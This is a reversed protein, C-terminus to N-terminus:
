HSRKAAKVAAIAADRQEAEWSDVIVGGITLVGKLVNVTSGICNYVVANEDVVRFGGATPLLQSARLLFTDPNRRRPQVVLGNLTPIRIVTPAGATIVFEQLPILNGDETVYFYDM